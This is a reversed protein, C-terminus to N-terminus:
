EVPESVGRQARHGNAARIPAPPTLIRARGGPPCAPLKISDPSHPGRRPGRPRKPERRFRRFRHDGSDPPAQETTDSAHVAWWVMYLLAAVPIKLVVMLFFVPWFGEM